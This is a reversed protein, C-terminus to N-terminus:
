WYDYYIHNNHPKYTIYQRPQWYPLALLPLTSIFGCLNTMSSVIMNRTSAINPSILRIFLVPLMFKFVNLSGFRVCFEVLMVTEVITVVVIATLLVVDDVDVLEIADASLVVDVVAAFWVIDLLVDGVIGADGGLGVGAVVVAGFWVMVLWDVDAVDEDVDDAAVVMVGLEIVFLVVELMVSGVVDISGWADACGGLVVMDVVADVEDIVDLEIEDDDEVVEVKDEVVDVVDVAEDVVVIGTETSYM